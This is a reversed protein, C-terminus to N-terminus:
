DTEPHNKLRKALAPPIRGGQSLTSLIEEPTLPPLESEIPEVPPAAPQNAPLPAPIEALAVLLDDTNTYCNPCNECAEIGPLRFCPQTATHEPAPASLLLLADALPIAFAEAHPLMPNDSGAPTWDPQFPSILLVQGADLARQLGSPPVYAALGQPIVLIFPIGVDLFAKALRAEFGSRALLLPAAGEAALDALADLARAVATEQPSAGAVPLVTPLDLLAPEGRLFLLLPRRTADLHRFLAAPYDIQNIRLTMLGARREADFRAQLQPWDALAQQVRRQEDESLALQQALIDAGAQWFLALANSQASQLIIERARRRSLGAEFLLWRWVDTELTPTPETHASM